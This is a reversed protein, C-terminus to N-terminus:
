ITEQPSSPSDYVALLRELAEYESNHIDERMRERAAVAVEPWQLLAHLLTHYVFFANWWSHEHILIPVSLLSCVLINRSVILSCCLAM